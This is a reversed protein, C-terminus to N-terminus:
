AASNALSPTMFRGTSNPVQFELGVLVEGDFRGGSQAVRAEVGLRNPVFRQSARVVCRDCFAYSPFTTDQDGQVQIEGVNPSIRRVLLAPRM